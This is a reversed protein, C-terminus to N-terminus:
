RRLGAALARLGDAFIRAGGQAPHRLPTHPVGLAGLARAAVNGMAAVPVGPFLALTQALFPLGARVEGARPPRNSQDHGPRHPHFPYANWGVAFLGLAALERYAITATPEASTRGDDTAQAFGREAGYQGLGPVGALLLRESTFPVGTRRAGNYGPAEGVLLLDPGRAHALSLALRLNARRLANGPPGPEAYQNVCDAAVPAAALGAILADIAPPTM